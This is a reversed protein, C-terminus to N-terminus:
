ARGETRENRLIETIKRSATDIFLKSPRYNEYDRGEFVKPPDEHTPTVSIDEIEILPGVPPPVVRATLMAVWITTIGTRRCALIRHMGDLIVLNGANREILPGFLFNTDAGPVIVSVPLYAPVAQDSFEQLLETADSLRRRSAISIVSMLSDTSVNEYAVDISEYRPWHTM